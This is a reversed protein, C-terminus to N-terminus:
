AARRPQANRMSRFTISYRLADVAPISHEWETRSPGSLLYISRRDLGMSAREWGTGRKRRLRFTCPSSLSVGIVDDYHPRDRHWGISTGSRYETILTHELRDPALSAFAAARERVPLLFPPMPAAEKLKADNYDYRFGFSVVRRKGLFGHFEFEKFPLDAFAEVLRAEEAASILDPAYRFGEPMSPPPATQHFLALQEHKMQERPSAHVACIHTHRQHHLHTAM